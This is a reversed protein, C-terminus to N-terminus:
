INIRDLEDFFQMNGKLWYNTGIMLRPEESENPTTSHQVWGPFIVIDGSMVPITWNTANWENLETYEFGMRYDRQWTSKGDPAQLILHGTEARPYYCISFITHAHNHIPHNSGKHNVTLWSSQIQLENKCMMINDRFYHAQQNIIEKIKELKLNDLFHGREVFVNATKSNEVSSNIYDDIYEKAEPTFNSFTYNTNIKYVPVGWLNNFITM